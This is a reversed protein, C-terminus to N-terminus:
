HKAALPDSSLTPRTRAELSPQRSILKAMVGLEEALVELLDDLTVIGALAGHQDVVPIRRIGEHRMLELASFVDESEPVTVLKRSMIDAASVTGAPVDLAVVEVVIDRDTVLGIPTRKGGREEVVILDGVHHERMLRAAERVATDPTCFVVTRTCIEGINM